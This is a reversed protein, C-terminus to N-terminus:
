KWGLGKHKSMLSSAREALTQLENVKGASLPFNPNVNGFEQVLRELMDMMTPADAFFRAEAESKKAMSGSTPGFLAIPWGPQGTAVVAFHEKGDLGVVINTTCLKM